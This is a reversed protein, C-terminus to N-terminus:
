CTTSGAPSRVYGKVPNGAPVGSESNRMALPAFIRQRLFEEHRQGSARMIVEALLAYGANSYEFGKGPDFALSDNAVLRFWDASSKQLSRFNNQDFTQHRHVWYDEIGSSHPELLDVANAAVKTFAADGGTPAAVVRAALLGALLGCLVLRRSKAVWAM